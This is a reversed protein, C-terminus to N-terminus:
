ELNLVTTPLGAMHRKAFLPPISWFFWEASPIQQKPPEKTLKQFKEETPTIPSFRSRHHDEQPGNEEETFISYIAPTDAHM